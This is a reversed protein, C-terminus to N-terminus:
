VVLSVLKQLGDPDDLDVPSKDVSSAGVLRLAAVFPWGYDRKRLRLRITGRMDSVADRFSPALAEGVESLAFLGRGKIQIFDDGKNAYYDAIYREADDVSINVAHKGDFWTERFYTVEAPLRGDPDAKFGRIGEPSQLGDRWMSDPLTIGSFKDTVISAILMNHKDARTPLWEGDPTLLLYTSGFDAQFTRKVEVTVRGRPGEITLDSGSAGGAQSATVGLDGYLEDVADVFKKEYNFGKAFADQTAPKFTIYERRAQGPVKPGQLHGFSSRSSPRVLKFNPLADLVSKLAADRDDTMVKYENKKGDFKVEFGLSDLVRQVDRVNDGDIHPDIRETLTGRRLFTYIAEGLGEGSSNNVVRLPPVNGRGYKFLGLLQNVPAFNGTFKYPQGGYWFVIGEAPTSINEVGKLKRLQSALIAMADENGSAEIADATATVEDRLREVERGTDAVFVSQMDRLLEVAFDHIIEEIPGVIENLLQKRNDKSLLQKLRDKADGELGKVISTARPAGKEGMIRRAAAERRQPDLNLGDLVGTYLATKIYTGLTDSDGLGYKSALSNLKSVAQKAHENSAMAAMRRIPPGMVRWGEAEARAEMQEVASTLRQFSDSIDDDTPKGTEPDFRASGEEHFVLSNEDFNVVNPNGTYMVEVSYWINGEPGFVEAKEKPSMTSIAANLVSFAQTFAEKVGEKQSFKSALGEADLGGSRINGMNRAARLGGDQLNWTIFINQGDTKETVRELKGHEAQTIIKKIDGFTLDWNEWIHMLHGGLGGEDLRHRRAEGLKAEVTRDIKRQLKKQLDKLRRISAAFDARRSSGRVCRDRYKKMDDISAGLEEVQQRLEGVDDQPFVAEALARRVTSFLPDRLM